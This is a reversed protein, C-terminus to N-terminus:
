LSATGELIRKAEQESDYPGAADWCYGEGNPGMDGNDLPETHLIWWGAQEEGVDEPPLFKVITRSLSESM